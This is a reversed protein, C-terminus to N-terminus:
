PTDRVILHRGASQIWATGSNSFCTVYVRYRKGSPLRVCHASTLKRGYGTATESLGKNHWWLPKREFEYPEALYHLTVDGAHRTTFEPLPQRPM